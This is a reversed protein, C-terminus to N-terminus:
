AAGLRALSTEETSRVCSTCDTAYAKDKPKRVRCPDLLVGYHEALEAYSRNVLPDYIDPRLVGTKLNDIRIQRPAAGFFSFAAVHAAVWASQDCILVPWVFTMRSFPLVM